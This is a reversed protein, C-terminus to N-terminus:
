HSIVGICVFGIHMYESVADQSFSLAVDCLKVDWVMGIKGVVM